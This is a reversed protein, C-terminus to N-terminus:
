RRDPRLNDKERWLEKDKNDYFIIDKDDLVFYDAGKKRAKHDKSLRIKIKDV